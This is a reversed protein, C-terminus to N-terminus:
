GPLCSCVAGTPTPNCKHGCMGNDNKCAGDCGAGEDTGNLCDMKKDCVQNLPLCIRTKAPSLCPFQDHSCESQRLTSNTHTVLLFKAEPKECGLEDSSDECDSNMDCRWNLPICEGNKCTFDGNTCSHALGGTM